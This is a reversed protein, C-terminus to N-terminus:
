KFLVFSTKYHRRRNTSWAYSPCYRIPRCRSIETPYSFMGLLSLHSLRKLKLSVVNGAEKSANRQSVLEEEESLKLFVDELTKSLLGNDCGTCYVIYWSELQKISVIVNFARILDDPKAQALLKGSRM